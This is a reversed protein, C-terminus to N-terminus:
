VDLLAKRSRSVPAVRSRREVLEPDGGLNTTLRVASSMVSKAKRKLAADEFRVKPGSLTLAGVLENNVGLVPAALAATDPGLTGSSFAPLKMRVLEPKAFALLVAGSAGRGLPMHTGIQINDRIWQTSHVRFLCVGNEEERVYFSSSEGTEESLARLEPM